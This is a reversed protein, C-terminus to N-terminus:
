RRERTGRGSEDGRRVRALTQMAAVPTQNGYVKGDVVVVPALACSGFCAVTELTFQGDATTKGPAVKLAAGLDSLLKGSGRVHCATGRCVTIRHKGPKEFRFQAYFGAIGEILAPPEKLHCAIAEIAEPPLYGLAAQVAQLLPIISARTRPFEAGPGSLWREVRRAVANEHPEGYHASPEACAASGKRKRPVRKAM